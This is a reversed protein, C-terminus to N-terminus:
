ASKRQREARAARAKLIEADNVPIIHFDHSELFFRRLRVAEAQLAVPDGAGAHAAALRVVHNEFCHTKEASSLELETDFHLHHM